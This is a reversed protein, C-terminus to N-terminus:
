LKSATWHWKRVDNRNHISIGSGGWWPGDLREGVEPANRAAATLSPWMQIQPGLIGSSM